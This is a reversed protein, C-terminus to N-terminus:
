RPDALLGARERDILLEARLTTRLFRYLRGALDELVQADRLDVCPEHAKAPEDRLVQVVVPAPLPEGRDSFGGEATWSVPVAEDTRRSEPPERQVAQSGSAVGTGAAWRVAHPELTTASEANGADRYRLVARQRGDDPVTTQPTEVARHTTTDTDPWPATSPTASGPGPVSEAANGPRIASERTTGPWTTTMDTTGLWIEPEASAGLMVATKGTTGLWTGPEGLRPEAPTGLKPRTGTAGAIPHRLVPRQRSESDSDVGSM